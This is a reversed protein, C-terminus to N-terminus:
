PAAKVVEIQRLWKVHRPGPRIDGLARLACPGESDPLPKGNIEAIVLVQQGAKANFLEGWTFLAVYGDSARAVVITKRFDHRAKEEFGAANLLDRMLVGRYTITVAEQKQEGSLQRAETITTQPLAALDGLSFARDKLLSGKFEVCATQQALAPQGFCLVAMLMLLSRLRNRANSPTPM